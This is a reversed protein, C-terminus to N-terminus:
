LKYVLNLANCNSSSMGLLQSLWICLVFVLSGIDDILFIIRCCCFLEFCLWFHVHAAAEEILVEAHDIRTQNILIHGFIYLAHLVCWPYKWQKTGHHNSEASDKWQEYNGCLLFQGLLSVFITLENVVKKESSKWYYITIEIIEM